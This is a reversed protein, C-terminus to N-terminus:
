PCFRPANAPTDVDTITVTPAIPPGEEAYTHNALVKFITGGTAPDGGAIVLTATEDPSGDGWHVM